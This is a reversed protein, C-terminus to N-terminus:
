NKIIQYIFIFHKNFIPNIESTLCLFYDSRVPLKETPNIFDIKATLKTNM